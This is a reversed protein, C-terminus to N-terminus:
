FPTSSAGRNTAKLDGVCQLCYGVSSFYWVLLSFLPMGCSCLEIDLPISLTPNQYVEDRWSNLYEEISSWRSYRVDLPRSAARLARFSLIDVVFNAEKWREGSWGGAGHATSLWLCGHVDEVCNRQWIQSCMRWLVWIQSDCSLCCRM